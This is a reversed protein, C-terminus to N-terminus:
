RRFSFGGLYGGRTRGIRVNLGVRLVPASRRLPVHVRVRKNGHMAVRASGYGASGRQARISVVGACDAVGPPCPVEVVVTGRVVRPFFTLDARRPHRGTVTIQECDRALLDGGDPRFVRDGGGGCVVDELRGASNDSGVQSGPSIWDSGPGGSFRDNGQHGELRDSGPGGALVDNGRSGALRDAGGGGDIVDDGELGDIVENGSGGRIADSGPSGSVAEIGTLSDGGGTGAALDVNVSATSDQWSASDLGAGGDLVDAGPGGTLGDRGGRGTLRDDGEEGRLGDDGDGGTLEDNGSGGRILVLVPERTLSTAGGAAVSATDDGDGLVFEAVPFATCSVENPSTATCGAGPNLPAGTDEVTLRGAAPQRVSVRNVEGPEASFSLMGQASSVTAAHAPTVGVGLLATVAAGALRM